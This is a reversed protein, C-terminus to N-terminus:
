LPHFSALIKSFLKENRSFREPLDACTVIFYKGKVIAFLKMVRRKEGNSDTDIVMIRTQHAPAGTTQDSKVHWSEGWQKRESDGLLKLTMGEEAPMVRVKVSPVENGTNIVEKPAAVVPLIVDNRTKWSTPLKISFHSAAFDYSKLAVDSAAHAVASNWSIFVAVALCAVVLAWSLKGFLPSSLQRFKDTAIVTM